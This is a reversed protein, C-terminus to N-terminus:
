RQIVRALALAHQVEAASLGARVAIEESRPARGLEARLARAAELVRALSAEGRGGEPSAIRRGEAELAAFLADIEDASIAMAGIADGIADLEVTDGSRTAALLSRAIRELEPRM